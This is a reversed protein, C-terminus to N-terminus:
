QPDESGSRTPEPGQLRQYEGILLGSVAWFTFTSAMRHLEPNFNVQALVGIVGALVGIVLFSDSGPLRLLRVGFFLVLAITGCYLFFGPVGTGVLVQLYM